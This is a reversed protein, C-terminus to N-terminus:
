SASSLLRSLPGAANRVADAAGPTSSSPPSAVAPHAYSLSHAGNHAPAHPAGHYSHYGQQPQNQHVSPPQPRYGYHELPPPPRAHAYVKSADEYDGLRLQPPLHSQPHQQQHLYQEHPSSTSPQQQQLTSAPHSQSPYSNAQYGQATALSPTGYPQSHMAYQPAAQSFPLPPGQQSQEREPPRPNLLSLLSNKGGAVGDVASRNLDSTAAPGQVSTADGAAQRGNQPQRQMYLSFPPPHTNRKEPNAAHPNHPGNLVALLGGAHGNHAPHPLHNGHNPNQPVAFHQVRGDEQPPFSQQNQNGESHAASQGTQPGPAGAVGNRNLGLSSAMLGSLLTDRQRAREIERSQADMSHQSSIQFDTYSMPQVQALGSGRPLGQANAALQGPGVQQQLISQQPAFNQSASPSILNLLTQTERTRQAQPAPLPTSAQPPDAIAPPPPPPAPSVFTPFSHHQSEYANPMVSTAATSSGNLLSLLNSSSPIGSHGTSERRGAGAHLAALLAATGRERDDMTDMIQAPGPSVHEASNDAGRLLDLLQRSRADGQEEIMQVGQSQNPVTHPAAPIHTEVHSSTSVGQAVGLLSKLDQSMAGSNQESYLTSDEPEEYAYGHADVNISDSTEHGVSQSASAHGSRQRQIWGKLKGIFPSILYFKGGMGQPPVKNKKWTPLDSLKFWDIRSIEKRTLTEFRTREDVGAVIYLRIKQERITVEMFDQSDLTIYASCDFGTEEYVERVACDREPEGM